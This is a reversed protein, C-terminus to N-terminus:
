GAYHGLAVLREGALTDSHHQPEVQAVTPHPREGLQAEVAHAHEELGHRQSSAFCQQSVFGAVVAEEPSVKRGSLSSSPVEEFADMAEGPVMEGSRLGPEVYAQM